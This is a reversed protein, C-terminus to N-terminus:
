EIVLIAEKEAAIIDIQKKLGPQYEIKFKQDENLYEFGMRAFIAWIRDEFAINHPKPKKVKISRRLKSPVIQWGDTEYEKKQEPKIKKFYDLSRKERIFKPSLDKINKLGDIKM